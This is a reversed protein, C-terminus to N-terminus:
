ILGEWPQVRSVRYGAALSALVAGALTLGLGAACIAGDIRCLARDLALTSAFGRNLLLGAGCALLIALVAGVLGLVLAQVAPLCVLAGGQMGLYRLLALEGRRREVGAWLGAGLSILYGFGGLTAVLWLLLHLDHDLTLLGDVDGAHSVIEIAQGRLAADLAPVQELRRAYLRFGAFSLRPAPPGSPLVADAPPPPARGDQYDEVYIALPLAVFAGERTFARPAAVAQVHLPLRVIQRGERGTVRVLQGTLAAGAAVGLRAAAPTSLVISAPDAPSAALLPDGPASPLLEVRVQRGTTAELLLSAALTRTRPVLFAVDPRAALAALTAVSIERNAASVIERINPDELLADRLGAIVGARLGALVILPALM